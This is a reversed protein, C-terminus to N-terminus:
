SSTKQLADIDKTLDQSLNTKIDQVIADQALGTALVIKSVNHTQFLMHVRFSVDHADHVRFFFKRPGLRAKSKSLYLCIIIWKRMQLILIVTDVYLM